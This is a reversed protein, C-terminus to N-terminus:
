RKFAASHRDAALPHSESWRLRRSEMEAPHCASARWSSAIRLRSALQPM